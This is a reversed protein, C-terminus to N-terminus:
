VSHSSNRQDASPFRNIVRVVGSWHSAGNGGASGWCQGRAWGRDNPATCYRRSIRGRRETGIPGIRDVTPDIWPENSMTFVVNFLRLLAGRRSLTTPPPLSAIALFPDYDSTNRLHIGLGSSHRYSITTYRRYYRMGDVGLLICMILLM